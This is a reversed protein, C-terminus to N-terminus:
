AWWMSSSMDEFRWGWGFGFILLCIYITFKLLKILKIYKQHNKTIKPNRSVNINTSVAKEAFDSMKRFIGLFHSMQFRSDPIQPSM